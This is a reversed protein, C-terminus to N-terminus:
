RNRLLKRAVELLRAPDVLRVVEPWYELKRRACYHLEEPVVIIFPIQYVDCIHVIDAAQTEAGEPAVMKHLYGILLDVKNEENFLRVHQGYNDFGNSIPITDCGDCILSTLVAPDTGEFYGVSNRGM